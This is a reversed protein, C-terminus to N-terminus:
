LFIDDPTLRGHIVNKGHATSLAAATQKAINLTLAVELGGDREIMSRLTNNESPEFVTYVIGNSDTGFDTVHLINPHSLASANKAEDLFRKAWRADIALAPPLIKVMVPKDTFEHRGSYLDGSDGERVLSAIRYKDAILKGEFDNIM